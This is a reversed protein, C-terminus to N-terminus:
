FLQYESIKVVLRTNQIIRISGGSQITGGLIIDINELKDADYGDRHLGIQEKFDIPKFNKLNELNSKDINDIETIDDLNFKEIWYRTIDNM